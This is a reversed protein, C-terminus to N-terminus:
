CRCTFVTAVVFTVGGLAALRAFVTAATSDAAYTWFFGVVLVVTLM